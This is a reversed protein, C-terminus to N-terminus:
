LSTRKVAGGDWSNILNKLAVGGKYSKLKQEIKIVQQKTDYTKLYIFKFPRHVKTSRNSGKNHYILRKRWDSTYGIYRYNDKLSKIIYIYWM